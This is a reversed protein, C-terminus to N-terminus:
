EHSAGGGQNRGWIGKRGRGKQLRKRGYLVVPLWLLGVALFPFLSLLVDWHGLGPLTTEVDVTAEGSGDASQVLIRVRWREQTEFPVEVQYQVQGGVDQRQTAYRVEARRNNLPQLGVYVMVDSAIKGGPPPELRIFFRGTGVEPDGWVSVVYPGILHDILM